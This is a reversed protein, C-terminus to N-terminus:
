KGLAALIHRAVEAGLVTSGEPRLHVNAPRQLQEKDLCSEIFLHLDNIPIHNEEMVKKQLLTTHSCM